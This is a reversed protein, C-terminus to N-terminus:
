MGNRVHLTITEASSDDDDPENLLITLTTMDSWLFDRALASLALFFLFSLPNIKDSPYYASRHITSRPFRSSCRLFLHRRTVCIFFAVSAFGAVLRKKSENSDREAIARGGEVAFQCQFFLFMV